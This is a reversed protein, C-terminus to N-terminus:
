EFTRDFHLDFIKPEPQDGGMCLCDMNFVLRQLESLNELPYGAILINGFTLNKYLVAGSQLHILSIGSRGERVRYVRPYVKSGIQFRTDSFISFDLIM